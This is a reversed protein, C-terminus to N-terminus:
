ADPRVWINDTPGFDIRGHATIRSVVRRELSLLYIPLQVRHQNGNAPLVLVSHRCKVTHRSM